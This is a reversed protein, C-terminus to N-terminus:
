GLSTTRFPDLTLKEFMTLGKFGERFDFASPGHNESMSLQRPHALLRLAVLLIVTEIEPEDPEGDVTFGHSTNDHTGQVCYSRVIATAASLVAAGQASDVPQGLANELDEVTVM